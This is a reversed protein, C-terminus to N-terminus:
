RRSCVTASLKEIPASPHLILFNGTIFYNEKQIFNRVIAVVNINVYKISSILFKTYLTLLVRTYMMETQKLKGAGVACNRVSFDIFHLEAAAFTFCLECPIPCIDNLHKM